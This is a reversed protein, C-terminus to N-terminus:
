DAPATAHRARMAREQRRERYIVYLGSAVVVVSGAITWADPFEGFVILGLVTAWVLLVYNFPQLVSAPAAQLARILLFHAFTGSAAIIGFKIWAETTPWTWFFPGIASMSIFGVVAAYLLSTESSDHRAVMRTMVNYLAFFVAAALAVLAGPQVITLGPRLMILVGFFGAAVAAWRRVGVHESLMVASLATVMLPFTAMIAHADALPMLSVAIVFLLMDLVLMLSRVIQLGPRASRFSARLPRRSGVLAMAFLTFFFARIWLIQPASYDVTLTKILADQAGLVLMAVLILVIGQTTNGTTDTGGM